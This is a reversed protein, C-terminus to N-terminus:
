AIEADFDRTDRNAAVAKKEVVAPPKEVSAPPSPVLAATANAPLTGPSAVAGGDLAAAKENKQVEALLNRPKPMKAGQSMLALVGGIVVLVGLVLAVQTVRSRQASRSATGLKAAVKAMEGQLTHAQAAAAAPAAVHAPVSPVPSQFPSKDVTPPSFRGDLEPPQLKEVSAARAPAAPSAVPREASVPKKPAGREDSMARAAYRRSPPMPADHALPVPVDFPADWSGDSADAVLRDLDTALVQGSEPRQLPDKELLRMVVSDLAGPVRPNVMSPPVPIAHAIARMLAFEDEGLPFPARGTVVEYLMYGISHLESQATQEFRREGRQFEESLYCRSQEPSFHAFTGLVSREATVTFNSGSRAIGMDLLVPEGDPRVVLNDSKIDRHFIGHRHLEHLALATKIFVDCISRLSPALKRQWEYLREGDVFDMILFPHGDRTPWCDFAHVRVINPHSLALLISVERRFRDEHYKRDAAGLESMKLKSMKLAYDTNERRVRYLSGFGGLGVRTIVRGAADTRGVVEYFGIKTGAALDNDQPPQSDSM